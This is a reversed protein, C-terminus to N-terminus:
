PQGWHQISTAMRSLNGMKEAAAVSAAPESSRFQAIVAMVRSVADQVAQIAQPVNGTKGAAVAQAADIMVADASQLAVVADNFAATDAAQNAGLLPAITQWVTQAAQTFLTVYQGLQMAVYVPDKWVNSCAALAGAAAGTVAWSSSMALALALSRALRLESGWFGKKM